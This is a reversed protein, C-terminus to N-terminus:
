RRQVTRAPSGPLPLRFGTGHTLQQLADPWQQAAVQGALPKGQKLSHDSRQETFACHGPDIQRALQDVQRQDRQHAQILHQQPQHAAARTILAQGQQPAPQAASRQQCQGGHGTQNARRTRQDRQQQGILGM